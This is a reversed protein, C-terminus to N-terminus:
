YMSYIRTMGPATFRLGPIWSQYAPVFANFSKTFLDFDISFRHGIHLAIATGGVLGFDKSFTKLFPSLEVQNKNLVEKHM